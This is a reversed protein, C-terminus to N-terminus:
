ANQVGKPIRATYRAYDYGENVVLIVWERKPSTVAICYYTGDEYRMLDKNDKVIDSDELLRSAFKDYGKATLEVTKVIEYRSPKDGKLMGMLKAQNEATMGLSDLAAKWEEDTRDRIDNLDVAKKYFHAKGNANQHVWGYTAMEDTTVGHVICMGDTESQLIWAGGLYGEAEFIEHSQEHKFRM